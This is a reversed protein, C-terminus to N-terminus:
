NTYNQKFWWGVVGYTGCTNDPSGSSKASAEGTRALLVYYPGKTADCGAYGAPYRYYAYVKSGSISMDGTNVPDLPVTTIIKADVLSKLFPQNGNPNSSIEWGGSSNGVAIPYDGFQSKYIELAKAIASMDAVRQSDRARGQIGRFAVITISALIAIVVIVVLLEVITFGHKRHSRTNM